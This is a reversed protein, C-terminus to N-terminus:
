RWSTFNNTPEGMAALYKCGPTLIEAPVNRLGNVLEAELQEDNLLALRIAEEGGRISALLYYLTAAGGMETFSGCFDASSFRLVIVRWLRETLPLFQIRRAEHHVTPPEPLTTM